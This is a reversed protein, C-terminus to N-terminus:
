HRKSKKRSIDIVSVEPQGEAFIEENEFLVEWGWLFYNRAPHPPAFPVLLSGFPRDFDVANTSLAWRLCAKVEAKRSDPLAEFHPVVKERIVQKMLAPSDSDLSVYKSGEDDDDAMGMFPSLLEVFAYPHITITEM